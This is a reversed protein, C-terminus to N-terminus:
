PKPELIAVIKSRGGDVFFLYPEKEQEDIRAYIAVHFTSCIRMLESELGIPAWFQLENPRDNKRVDIFWAWYESNCVLGASIYRERWKPRLTDFIARLKPDVLFYNELTM